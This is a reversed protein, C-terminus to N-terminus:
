DHVVDTLSNWAQREEVRNSERDRGNQPIIFLSDILRSIWFVFIVHIKNGLDNGYPSDGLRLCERHRHFSNKERKRINKKAVVGSCHLPSPTTCYGFLSSGSGSWVCLPRSPDRCSGQYIWIAPYKYAVPITM